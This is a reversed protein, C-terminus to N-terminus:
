RGTSRWPRPRKTRKRSATATYESHGYSSHWPEDLVFRGSQSVALHGRDIMDKVDRPMTGYGPVNEMISDYADLRCVLYRMKYTNENYSISNAASIRFETFDQDKQYYPNAVGHNGPYGYQSDGDIVDPGLDPDTNFLLTLYSDVSTAEGTLGGSDGLIRSPVGYCLVLVQIPDNAPDAPDVGLQTILGSRIQGALNWGSEGSWDSQAIDENPWVNIEIINAQPIGATACYYDAIRRSMGALTAHLNAVVGVNHPSIGCLCPATFSLSFVFAAILIAACRSM